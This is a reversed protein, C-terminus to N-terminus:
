AQGIRQDSDRQAVGRIRELGRLIESSSLVERRGELGFHDEESQSIRRVKDAMEGAAQALELLAGEQCMGVLALSQAGLFLDPCSLAGVGLDLLVTRIWPLHPPHEASAAELAQALLAGWVKGQNEWLVSARHALAAALPSGARWGIAAETLCVLAEQDSVGIRGAAGVLDLDVSSAFDGRYSATRLVWESRVEFLTHRCDSALQRAEEALEAAEAPRAADLLASAGNLLASLRQSQTPADRQARGFYEAAVLPLNKRYNLRGMWESFSALLSPPSSPGLTKAISALLGEEREESAGRAAQVALATRWREMEPDSFSPVSLVLELCDEGGGRLVVLAAKGLRELHELETSFVPCRARMKALEYLVRDVALPTFIGMSVRVWQELLLLEGLPEEGRKASALGMVLTAEADSLKGEDALQSAVLRAEHVVDGWLGAAIKQQLRDPSPGPVLASLKAHAARRKTEPWSQLQGPLRLLLIGTKANSLIAGCAILEELQSCVNALDHGTAQSLLQPSAMRGALYIWALLEEGLLSLVVDDQSAAGLTMAAGAGMRLSGLARRELVLHDGSWRALGARVWSGVERLLRAPNGLTRGFLEKAGDQKFHFLRDPGEFLQELDAPTLAKLDIHETSGVAGSGQESAICLGQIARPSRELERYIAAKSLVDVQEWDDITILTDSHAIESRLTGVWAERDAASQHVLEHLQQLCSRSKGADPSGELARWRGGQAEFARGLENLFRSRGMGREGIVEVYGVHALDDIAREISARSGLWPFLHDTIDTAEKRLIGLADQASRPRRNPERELLKAVLRVVHGPCGSVLDSIPPAPRDMRAELFFELDKTDEPPHGVLAEFIMIGLAFLDARSDVAGGLLQEPAAYAPTGVAGEDVGHGSGIAAGSSLGFDLVCPNGNEDVLVNDPKLDRHIVGRNHIRAVIEFLAIVRQELDAWTRACGAGPFPSGEVVEMVVFPRQEHIGEDLFRAVGPVHLLRLASVEARVETVDALAPLLKVCVQCARLEDTALFVESEGKGHLVRLLRYRNAVLLAPDVTQLPDADGQIQSESMPLLYLRM